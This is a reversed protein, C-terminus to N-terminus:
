HKLENIARRNLDSFFFIFKLMNGTIYEFEFLLHSRLLPDKMWRDYIEMYKENTHALGGYIILELIERNSFLEYNIGLMSDSDLFQNITNRSSKFANKIKDSVPISDYIKSINFISIRDNNQFFLRYTLVFAELSEDDPEKSEIKVPEGKKATVQLRSNKRFVHDTFSRERLKNTKENFLRLTKIEKEFM